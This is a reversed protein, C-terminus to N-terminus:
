YKEVVADDLLKLRQVCYFLFSIVRVVIDNVKEGSIIGLYANSVGYWSTYWGILIEEMQQCLTSVPSRGHAPMVASSTDELTQRPSRGGRGDSGTVISPISSM